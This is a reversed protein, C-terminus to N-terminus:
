LLDTVFNCDATPTCISPGTATAIATDRTVIFSSTFDIAIHCLQDSSPPQWAPKHMAPVWSALVTRREVVECTWLLESSDPRHQNVISMKCPLYDMSAWFTRDGSQRLVSSPSFRDVRAM